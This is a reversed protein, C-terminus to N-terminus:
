RGLEETHGDGYLSTQRPDNRLTAARRRKAERWQARRRDIAALKNTLEEITSAQRLNQKRLEDLEETTM